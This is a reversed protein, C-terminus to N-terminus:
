ESLINSLSKLIYDGCDHGYQDNIKKFFDIDGIAISLMNNQNKYEKQLDIFADAMGRRNMLGTLPDLSAMKELKKNYQYLKHEAQTFKKCYFYSTLTLTFLFLLINIFSISFYCLGSQKIHLNQNYTITYFILTLLAFIIVGAIKNKLEWKINFFILPISIFSLYIYNSHIGIAMSFIFSSFIIISLFIILPITPRYYYTFSFTLIMGLCSFFSLISFIVCQNISFHVCIFAYYLVFAISLIRIMVAIDKSESEHTSDQLILTKIKRVLKRFM